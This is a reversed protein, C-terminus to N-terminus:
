TTRRLRDLDVGSIKISNGKLPTPKGSEDLPYMGQTPNLMSAPVGPLDPYTALFLLYSSGTVLFVMDPMVYNVGDHKGGEQKIKVKEGSEVAGKYIKTVELDFISYIIATSEGEGIDLPHVQPGDKVRAEIVLDAQSFLDDVTDYHPWDAHYEETPEGCASVFAALLMLGIVGISKRLLSM